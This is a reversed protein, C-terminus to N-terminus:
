HGVALQYVRFFVMVTAIVLYGRLVALGIRSGLPLKPAALLTLSPMRWTQRETAAFRKRPEHPHYRQWVIMGAGTLLALAMGGVLMDFIAAASMDPYLVSATLILSLIVLVAIIASTFINMGRSNVWPGLVEEDNCLLLLFV